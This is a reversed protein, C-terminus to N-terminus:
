KGNTGFATYNSLTDRFLECKAPSDMWAIDQHSSNMLYLPQPNTSRGSFKELNAPLAKVLEIDKPSQASAKQGAFLYVSIIILIKLSYPFFHNKTKTM